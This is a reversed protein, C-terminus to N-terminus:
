RRESLQEPCRCADQEPVTQGSCSGSCGSCGPVESRFVQAFHRIVYVLVAALVVLVVITQWM